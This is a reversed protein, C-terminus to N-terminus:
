PMAISFGVPSLSVRPIELWCGQAPSPLFFFGDELCPPPRSMTATEAVTDSGCNARFSSCNMGSGRRSRTAMEREFNSVITTQLVANNSIV